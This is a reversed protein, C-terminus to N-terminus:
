LYYFVMNDMAFIFGLVLTRSDFLCWFSRPDFKYHDTANNYPPFLVRWVGLARVAWPWKNRASKLCGGRGGGSHRNGFTFEREEPVDLDEHIRDAIERETIYNWHIEVYIHTYILKLLIHESIPLTEKCKKFLVEM